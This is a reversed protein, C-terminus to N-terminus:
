CDMPHLRAQLLRMLGDIKSNFSSSIKDIKENMEERLTDQFYVLHHCTLQASHRSVVSSSPVPQEELPAPDAAPHQDEQTAAPASDKPPPPDDLPFSAADGLMNM